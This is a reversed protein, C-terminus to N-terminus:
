NRIASCAPRISSRSLALRFEDGTPPLVTEILAETFEPYRDEVRRSTGANAWVASQLIREVQPDSTQGGSISLRAAANPHDREFERLERQLYALEREYYPLLKDIEDM